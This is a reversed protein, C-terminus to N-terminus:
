AVAEVTLLLAQGPNLVPLPLGETLVAGTFTTSAAASIWAPDAVQHRSAEGLEERVRVRYARDPELGPLPVRVSSGTASTATRVWAFVARAGDPAVVGHLLAGADVDDGRVTVGGHLLPRLEKYLSAWARIGDLEEPGCRTLDWEIGAHGFLATVGRFGLSAERHTTHAEAPGLHTGILEPPLLAQTWRQIQQREVPDNTDSAWV